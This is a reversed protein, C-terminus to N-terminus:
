APSWRRVEVCGPVVDFADADGDEVGLELVSEETGEEFGIMRRRGNLDPAGECGDVAGDPVVYGM